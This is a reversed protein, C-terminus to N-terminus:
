LERNIDQPQFIPSIIIVKAKGQSEDVRVKRQGKVKRAVQLVLWVGVLPILMSCGGAVSGYVDGIMDLMFLSWFLGVFVFMVNLLSVLVSEVERSVASSDLSVSLSRSLMWVSMVSDVGVACSLLPDALGFTLLMTVNVLLKAIVSLFKQKEDVATKAPIGILKRIGSVVIPELVAYLYSFVFVPVYDMVLASSCQFSYLWAADLRQTKTLNSAFGCVTTFFFHCSDGYCLSFGPSECTFIPLPYSSQVPPQGILAYLFCSSQSLFASVIPGGVFAILTMTVLNFFDSECWSILSPIAVSKWEVKFLSLAGQLALLRGTSLGRLSVVVYVINLVLVVAVNLVHAAVLKMSQHLPPWSPSHASKCQETSGELLNYVSYCGAVVMIMVCVAPVVGHLYIASDVWGYQSAHTSFGDSWPGLKLTVFIISPVVLVLATLRVISKMLVNVVDWGEVKQWTCATIGQHLLAVGLIM